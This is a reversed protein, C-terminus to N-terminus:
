KSLVDFKNPNIGADTVEAKLTSDANYRGPIYNEPSAPIVMDGMKTEKGPRFARIEVRVKGLPATGEFAGAKVPLDTPPTGAEGVLRVVGEDLPNKDLTVTGTVKAQKAATSGSCGVVVCAVGLICGVVVWHKVSLSGLSLTLANAM